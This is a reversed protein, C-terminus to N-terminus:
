EHEIDYLLNELERIAVSYRNTGLSEELKDLKNLRKQILLIIQENTKL